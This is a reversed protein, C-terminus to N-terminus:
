SRVVNASFGKFLFPAFECGLLPLLGDEDLCTTGYGKFTQFCRTTKAWQPQLLLFLTLIKRHFFHQYGYRSNM